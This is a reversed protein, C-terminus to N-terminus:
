PLYRFDPAALLAHMLQSWASPAAVGADSQRALFATALEREAGGPPRGFCRLYAVTLPDDGALLSRAAADARDTVFPSNLLFLAQPAVTSVDRRGTTMSPDPFDFVEFLDPLANRFVPVYVSRCPAPHVYGYDSAVQPTPGGATTELEGSVSLMADRLQEASLRKRMARAWLRNEPDAAIPASSRRYADSAVLTRVLKKVSWDGAVLESALHDLLLPHTPPRGTSGFNDPTRVLGEGFVWSWVRNAMVRSALTNDRHVIWEALERRGSETAPMPAADTGAGGVRPVGRRAIEGLRHVSGRIHIPVDVIEDREEVGMVMPREPRNKELRALRKKAADRAAQAEAVAADDSVATPEEAGEPLFQVADATVHGQTGATSVLVHGQNGAEFRYTGLDVFRGDIPPRRTQDVKVETFGGAHLITIPVARARSGGPSYALRVAYTGGETLAPQFTLSKEGKGAQRDHLYGKGVYRGSHTSHQWDGVKTATEDDVVLGALADATVVDTADGKAEALKKEVQGVAEKAAAIRRDYADHRAEEAGPIPLPRRLWKSVNAHEVSRANYLVGAMAYYERTAIPDFKHDHCRACSVTQALFAKGLVDIQEDVIDMELQRKDQDEYNVNGMVLLTAAAARRQRLDLTGSDDLDGALQHRVFDDYPLDRDFADIVWDRYRWADQFVFGRLTVSEGYRAVDLWHRGFHEAYARSALLEDVLEAWVQPDDADRWRDLDGATPPLGTLDFHVRRVLTAVDAPPNPEVDEERQRVALFGDVPNAFGEPVKPRAVTQYAWHTALLEDPDHTDAVALEGHGALRRPDVAGGAIWKKLTALDEAPLKGGPPMQLDPDSYDVVKMLLSAAPDGAVIAPGSDGGVAWGDAHDLRLGGDPEEAGHCDLCHEVLLPRIEREFLEVQAAEDAAARGAAVGLVLYAALCRFM